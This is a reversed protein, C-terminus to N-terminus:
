RRFTVRKTVSWNEIQLKCFYTGAAVPRGSADTGDWSAEHQGIRRSGTFITAIEHGAVTYVKLSTQPDPGSYPIAARPDITPHDDQSWVFGEGVTEPVRYRVRTRFRFPNPFTQLLSPSLMPPRGGAELDEETLSFPVPASGAPEAAPAQPSAIEQVFRGGDIFFGSLLDGAEPVPGRILFDLEGAGTRSEAAGHVLYPDRVPPMSRVHDDPGPQNWADGWGRGEAPRWEIRSPSELPRGNLSLVGPDILANHEPQATFILHWTGESGPEWRVAPAEGRRVAPDLPPVIWPVAEGGPSLRAGAHTARAFALGYRLQILSPAAGVAVVAGQEDWDLDLRAGDGAPPRGSLVDVGIWTRDAGSGIAAVRIVREVAPGGVGYPRLDTVLESWSGGALDFDLGGSSGGGDGRRVDCSVFLVNDLHPYDWHYTELHFRGGGCPRDVVSMRDGFAAFDEDILGDGDNDLGDARDEDVLGDGDDDASRSLGRHGDAVGESYFGTFPIYASRRGRVVAPVAPEITLLIKGSVASTFTLSGDDSVAVSASPPLRHGPGDGATAPSPAPIASLATAVVAPILLNRLRFLGSAKTVSPM